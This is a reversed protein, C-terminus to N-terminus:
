TEFRESKERNQNSNIEEDIESMMNVTHLLKESFGYNGLIFFNYIYYIISYIKYENICSM